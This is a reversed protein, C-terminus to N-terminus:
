NTEGVNNRGILHCNLLKWNTYGQPLSLPFSHFYFFRQLKIGRNAQKIADRKYNYPLLSISFLLYYFSINQTFPKSQSCLLDHLREKTYKCCQRSLM